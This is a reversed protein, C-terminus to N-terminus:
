RRRSPRLDPYPTRNRWVIWFALALVAAAALYLWADLDYLPVEYHGGLVGLANNAAHWLMAPFISGSLLTVAALLVGLFATPVIRFLSTHFFGFIAGTVLALVVPSFRRRLGHLLVGRFAIEECIGPAVTLLLILQWFPISDPLLGQGFAELMKQPVPFVLNALRFVGTATLLGAPAGILVALWVAPRPARLALTERVNLRYRRILFFSGGLFLVGLNVLLQLRIDADAGMNAAVAFMIAWLLAFARLVHRPFLAPGGRFEEAGVDAATILRETSLAKEALVGVGVAAAATVVWAVAIMPWDPMGVLVEKVAVAINAVPVLVIVSRLRVGPLMPALTPILGLLFVPFFYLQAEKYTKARGSTLLLVSSALAIVPLYLVLLLLARAPTIAAAFNEPAPVLKFGVYVLLNAVQILTIMLAVALILLLQAVIVERRSVATTLLTELTGREKEGALTDTAVVAGGSLVFLLLFLTAFRGLKLGTVEAATAVDATAVAGVTKPAVPLGRERLTVDRLERRADRLRDRMTRAGTESADRDARYVVTIAPVGPLAPEGGSDMESEDREADAAEGESREAPEASKEKAREAAARAAADEGCATQLYFHLDGAELAAAADAAPVEKFRQANPERLGGGGVKVPAAAPAAAIAARASDAHAGIVAYTYETAVLKAARRQESWRGAYLMLPMVLLPLVISMIVTRKDRLVTRLETSFLTVITARDVKM